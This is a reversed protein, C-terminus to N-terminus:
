RVLRRAGDALHQLLPADLDEVVGPVRDGLVTARSSASATAAGSATRAAGANERTTRLSDPSASMPGRSYPRSASVTSATARSSTSTRAVPTSTATTIPPPLM